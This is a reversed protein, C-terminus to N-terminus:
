NLSFRDIWGYDTWVAFWIRWTRTMWSCSFRSVSEAAACFLSIVTTM